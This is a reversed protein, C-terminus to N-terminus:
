DADHRPANAKRLEKLQRNLERHSAILFGIPDDGCGVQNHTIELLYNCVRAEDPTYPTTRDFKM